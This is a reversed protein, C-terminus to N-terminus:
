QDWCHCEDLRHKTLKLEDRLNTWSVFSPPINREGCLWYRINRESKKCEKSLTQVTLCNAEMWIKLEQSKM